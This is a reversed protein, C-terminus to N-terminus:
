VKNWVVKWLSSGFYSKYYYNLTIKLIDREAILWDITDNHTINKIEDM